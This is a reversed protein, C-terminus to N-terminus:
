YLKTWHLMTYYGSKFSPM